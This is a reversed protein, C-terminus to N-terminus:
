VNEWEGSANKRSIVEVGFPLHVLGIEGLNDNQDALLKAQTLSAAGNLESWTFDSGAEIKVYYTREYTSM